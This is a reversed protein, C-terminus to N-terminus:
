FQGALLYGATGLMVLQTGVGGMIRLPAKPNDKTLGAVHALRALVLVVGIAHLWTAVLGGAECLAMLILVLPLNEVLNGHRRIWLALDLSDGHLISIGAGGRKASIINALVIVLLTLLSAYLATIHFTM